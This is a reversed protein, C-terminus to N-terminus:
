QTAEWGERLIEMIIEDNWKGELFRHQKMQGVQKFGCKEYCRIGRTNKAKKAITM